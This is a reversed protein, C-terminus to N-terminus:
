RGADALPKAPQQVTRDTEVSVIDLAEFLAMRHPHNVDTIVEADRAPLWLEVTSGDTRTLQCFIDPNM